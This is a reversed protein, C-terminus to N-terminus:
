FTRRLAIRWTRGVGPLAAVNAYVDAVPTFYRENFLNDVNLATRWPGKQLYASASVVTYAPLRVTGPVIGQTSSVHTVGATAGVQGWPLRPGTYVAFLSVVSRPVLTNTYDGKILTSVTYLAYAGGYGNVGSVGVTAPPVVIFSNDPGKIRTTQIDGAFTFSLRDSALWRLELEIGRARTGQVANNLALQTRAQRYAALSGTLVDGWLRAKM